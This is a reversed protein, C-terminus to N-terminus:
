AICGANALSAFSQGASVVLIFGIFIISFFIGARKEKM